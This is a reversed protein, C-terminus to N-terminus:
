GGLLVDEKWVGSSGRRLRYDRRPQGKANLPGPDPMDAFVAVLDITTECPGFIADADMGAQPVLM